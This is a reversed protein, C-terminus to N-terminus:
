SYQIRTIDATDATWQNIYKSQVIHKCVNRFKVHDMYLKFQHIDALKGISSVWTDFDQEALHQLEDHVQKALSDDDMCMLRNIFCLTNVTCM